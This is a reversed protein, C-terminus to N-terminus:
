SPYRPMFTVPARPVLARSVQLTLMGITGAGIILVHEGVQPLRRLVAHVAVASPELLVAQEDSMESSIRFLQQEHVLMEESWGGGIPEPGSLLNARECLSYNGSACSRCIPQA